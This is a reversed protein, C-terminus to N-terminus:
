PAFAAVQEQKRWVSPKVKERSKETEVKGPAVSVVETHM